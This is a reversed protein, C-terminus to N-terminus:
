TTPPQTPRYTPTAPPKVQRHEEIMLKGREQEEEKGERRGQERSAISTQKLLQTLRDNVEHKLVITDRSNTATTKDIKLTKILAVLATLFTIAQGGLIVWDMISSNIVAIM